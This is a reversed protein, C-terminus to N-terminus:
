KFFQRRALMLYVHGRMAAVGARRRVSGDIGTARDAVRLWAEARKLYYNRNRRDSARKAISYYESALAGGLGYLNIWEDTAGIMPRPPRPDRLLQELTVEEGHAAVRSRIALLTNDAALKGVLLAGHLGRWAAATDWRSFVEDWLPLHEHHKKDDWPVEFLQEVVKWAGDLVQAYDNVGSLAQLQTQVAERDFLRGSPLPYRGALFRLGIGVDLPRRMAALRAVFRRFLRIHGSVQLRVSVSFHQDIDRQINELLQQKTRCLKPSTL